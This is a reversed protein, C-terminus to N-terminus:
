VSINKPLPSLLLVQHNYYLLVKLEMSNLVFSRFRTELKVAAAEKEKAERERKRLRDRLIWFLENKASERELYLRLATERREVFITNAVYIANRVAFGRALAEITTASKERRAVLLRAVLLRAKRRLLYNRFTLQVLTAAAHRQKALQMLTPRSIMTNSKSTLMPSSQPSQNRAVDLRNALTESEVLALTSSNPRALNPTSSSYASMRPGQFSSREDITQATNNMVPLPRAGLALPASPAFRQVSQNNQVHPLKRKKVGVNPPNLNRCPPNLHRDSQNQVHGSHKKENNHQKAKRRPLSNSFYPTSQEGRRPIRRERLSGVNQMELANLSWQTWNTLDTKGSM